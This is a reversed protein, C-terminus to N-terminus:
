AKKLPAKSPDLWFDLYNDAWNTFDPPSTVANVGSIVPWWLQFKKASSAQPIYYSQQTVYRVVDHVMEVQKKRDFELGIKESMDNLKPDGKHGDKGDPTMGHFAGGQYHLTSSILTAATPFPREAMLQAGSYGKRTGNLTEQYFYAQVRNDVWQNFPEGKLSGRLGADNFMAQYLQVINNYLAGFTSDNLWYFDFDTGNPFGAASMLKKAEAVNHKLYKHNDGFAKTDAPDLWYDGWGAGLVTCLKYNLDLGQEAFKQRNDIVDIYGDRDILMSMAQRMRTDKFPSNGDYGFTMYWINREPFVPEEHIVTEPLDKHTSVIELQFGGFGGMVDSYINGARFQAMQQSPDRLIPVELKDPFPRGKVYYDPNKAWVIRASPVYEELIWPGNGRIDKRPDFQSDAERPFVYFKDAASFLPIISADPHDMKFVITSKDPASISAVAAAKNTNDYALSRAGPNNKIYKNWSWVVDEADMARGNTPARRDFKMDKRLKFTLTLKDPSLEWSEASEGESSGDFVAPYRGVKWKLLKTYALYGSISVVQSTDSVLSDFHTADGRTFHKWVGGPKGEKATDKPEAVLSSRKNTTEKSRDGGSDSGCGLLSLTLASIGIGSGGLVVKRRTFRHKTLNTWYGEGM